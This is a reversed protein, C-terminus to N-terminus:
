PLSVRTFNDGAPTQTSNGGDDGRSDLHVVRQGINRCAGGWLLWLTPTLSHEGTGESHITGTDNSGRLISCHPHPSLTHPYHPPSPLSPSSIPHSSLSPTLTLPPLPLTHPHSPLPHTTLTNLITLPTSHYPHSPTLHTPPSSLPTVTTIPHNHAISPMNVLLMLSGILHSIQDWDAWLCLNTAIFWLWREEKLSSLYPKISQVGRFKGRKKYIYNHSSDPCKRVQKVPWTPCTRQQTKLLSPLSSAVAERSLVAFTSM